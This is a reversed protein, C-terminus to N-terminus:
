TSWPIPILDLLAWSADTTSSKFRSSIISDKILLTPVQGSLLLLILLAKSPTVFILPNSLSCSVVNAAKSIGRIVLFNFFAWFFSWAFYSTYLRLKMRSSDPRGREPVVCSPIPWVLVDIVVDTFRRFIRLSICFQFQSNKKFFLRAYFYFLTGSTYDRFRDRYGESLQISSAKM